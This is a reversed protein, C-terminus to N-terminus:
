VYVCVCVCVCSCICCLHRCRCHCFLIAAASVAIACRTPSSAAAFENYIVVGRTRSKMEMRRQASVKFSDPLEKCGPQFDGQNVQNERFFFSLALVEFTVAVPVIYLIYIQSSVYVVCICLHM